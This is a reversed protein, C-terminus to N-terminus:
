TLPRLSVVHDNIYWTVRAAPSSMDTTCNAVVFDNLEYSRRLGSIVPDQSPLAAFLCRFSFSVKM